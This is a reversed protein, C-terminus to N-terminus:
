RARLAEITKKIWRLRAQAVALCGDAGMQEWFDDTDDLARRESRLEQVELELLAEAEELFLLQKKPALAGLMYVRTRLPDFTVAAAQEAVPPGLWSRLERLGSATITYSRRVRTGRSSEEAEIWGRDHLKKMLPYIAGASGSWHSSRSLRFRERIAHATSGPTAHIMGLVGGELESLNSSYASDAGPM